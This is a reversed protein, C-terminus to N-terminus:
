DRLGYARRQIVRVKNNLGEGFGLAVKNEPKAYAAIGDWHREILEAFDEFPKLRQWKLTSKWNEFFRRAWGAIQDEWLQGFSEKQGYATLLRTNAALLKKVAKRGELPLNKKRSLLTYKQGKILSRNKEALRKSEQKHVTDLAQGLHRMVHFKDYLIAAQPAHQVTSSEFARWINMVVLQIGATKKATLWAYFLNM